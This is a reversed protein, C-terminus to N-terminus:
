AGFRTALEAEITAILQLTQTRYVQMSVEYWKVTEMYTRLHYRWEDSTRLDEYDRPVSRLRVNDWSTATKGDREFGELEFTYDFYKQGEQLKVKDAFDYLIDERRQMVTLRQEFHQIILNRLEDNTVIDVGHSQMTKYAGLDTDLDTYFFSSALLYSLSDDYPATGAMHELVSGADRIIRKHSESCDAVSEVSRQLDACLQELVEQELQELRRNENWNNLAFAGFVGVMIALTEFLYKRWSPTHPGPTTGMRSRYSTGRWTLLGRPSM